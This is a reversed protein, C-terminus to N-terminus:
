RSSTANESSTSPVLEEFGATEADAANRLRRQVGLWAVLAGALAFAAGTALAARLGAGAMVVGLVAVGLAAGSMRALNVVGAALGARDASVASVAVGVVPGTNLALGAGLVAFVVELLPLPARPGAVAFATLGTALAAMGATMAPRPGFRTVLRATLPSGLVVVLPLPLLELGALLTGAGRDRQLYLGALLLFGYMCFTMCLAVTGAVPLQGRRLLGLPLMAGERRGAWLFAAGAAVAVAGALVATHVVAFTLSGLFVVALLQGPVDLGRPRPDASEPVALSLALAALGIPLNLWFIAPWGTREVLFGGLVPGSALAVGTVMSWAAMARHRERRGPFAVALLALSQPIALAAGAGQVARAAVLLTMTPALACLVSGLVFIATGTRFLRRRGFRDGLTGGTLLLAAFAVNYADVVEQLNGLSGHLRAGIAPLALNVATTDTQALFLGLCLSLLTLQKRM